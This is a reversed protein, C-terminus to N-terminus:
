ELLTVRKIPSGTAFGSFDETVHVNTNSTIEVIDAVIAIGDAALNTGSTASHFMVTGNATYLAGNLDATVGSQFDIDLSHGASEYLENDVYMLIGEFDGSTPASFNVTAGSGVLIGEAKIVAAPFDTAYFMVESGHVVTTSGTITLSGGAIVYNGSPLTITGCTACDILLGGCWRRNPELDDVDAPLKVEYGNRHCGYNVEPFMVESGHVVTTSGTITLSGGAIVYNGSPLTITGCTACDILLGGCWRRNPELDDVDAPLKVEYGNRHCGYNVEPPVGLGILPDPEKPMLTSPEVSLSDGNSFGCDDNDDAEVSPGNVSASTASLCSNSAVYLGKANSSNVIVGCELTATTNSHVYLAKEITPNLAYICGESQGLYGAVARACVDASNVGLVPMFFTRQQQCITVEVARDNLVYNGTVPPSNVTVVIGDEDHTFGNDATGKLAGHDGYDEVEATGRQGRRIQQAGYLAGADAATQMLRRQHFLWGTDTAVALFGFLTTLMVAAVVIFIGKRNNAAIVKRPHLKM